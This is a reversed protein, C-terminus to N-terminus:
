DLRLPFSSRRDFPPLLRSMSLFASDGADDDVLGRCVGVCVSVCEGFGWDRGELRSNWLFVVPLPQRLHSHYAM